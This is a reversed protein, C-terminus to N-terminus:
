KKVHINHAEALQQGYDKPSKDKIVPPNNADQAFTNVELKECMADFAKHILEDPTADQAVDAGALIGDITEACDQHQANLCEVMIQRTTKGKDVFDPILSRAADCVTARDESKKEVDAPMKAILENHAAQLDGHQKKLKDHEGQLNALAAKNDKCDKCDDAGEDVEDAEAQALKTLQAQMAALTAAIQTLAAKLEEVNKEKSDQIKCDAGARGDDVLAIHHVLVKSRVFDVGEPIGMNPPMDKASVYGVNYDMSLEKKGAEIDGITQADTIVLTGALYIEGDVDERHADRAFGVATGTWNEADIKQHNNVFPKNEVSDMTEKSTLVEVPMYVKYVTLAETGPMGNLEYGYYETIGVKAFRAPVILYGEPTYERKEPLQIVMAHDSALGKWTLLKEDRKLATMVGDINLPKSDSVTQFKIYHKKNAKLWAKATRLDFRASDFAYSNIVGNVAFASIGAEIPERKGMVGVRKIIAILESM